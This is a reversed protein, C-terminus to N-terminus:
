ARAPKSSGEHHRGGAGVRCWGTIMVNSVAHGHPVDTGTARHSQRHTSRLEIGRDGWGAGETVVM